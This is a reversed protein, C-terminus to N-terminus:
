HRRDVWEAVKMKMQRGAVGVASGPAQLPTGSERRALEDARENGAIGEHGLVWILTVRNLSPLQQLTEKCESVLHSNTRRLELAKLAAQSDSCIYIRKGRCGVLRNELACVLIATIEAQFVTSHRGLPISAERSSASLYMGAGSGEETKSGDTYCILEQRQLPGAETRWSMQWSLQALEGQWQATRMLRYVAMAAAGQVTVNLPPWNLLTELALSPATRLASTPGRGALRQVHTVM